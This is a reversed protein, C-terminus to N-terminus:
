EISQELEESFNGNAFTCQFTGLPILFCTSMVTIIIKKLNNILTQKMPIPM